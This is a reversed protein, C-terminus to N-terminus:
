AGAQKRPPRGRRKPAEASPVTTPQGAPPVTEPAAGSIPTPVPEGGATPATAVATGGNTEAEAGSSLEPVSPRNETQAAEGPLGVGPVLHDILFRQCQGSRMEELTWQGYALRAFYARRDEISPLQEGALDEYAAGPGCVVPVGALLADHGVNSNYAVVLRAGALSEALPRRDSEVGPLDVGGRPHPRYVAGARAGLQEALWSQLAEADLGHAADGPVQGCVLVYGQPDGGQEVVELGLADFRDPPCAFAPVRNLGALGVQFYGAAAESPDNVRRMYGWDIVVVPVGAAAYTDRVRRGAKMGYVVVLDFTEREGYYHDTARVSAGAGCLRFGEVLAPAVAHHAGAYIGVRM